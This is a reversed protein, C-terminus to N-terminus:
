RMLMLSTNLYHFLSILRIVMPTFLRVAKTLAHLCLSATKNDLSSALTASLLKRCLEYLDSRHGKKRKM